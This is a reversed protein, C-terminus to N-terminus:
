ATAALFHSPLADGAHAAWVSAPCEGLDPVTVRTVLVEGEGCCVRIGEYPVVGAVTGPAGAAGTERWVRTRWVAVTSGDALMTFAGPYPHTLARVWDHVARAPRSWDIRGDAPKRKPYHTALSEDQPMRPATGDAIRPVLEHLLRVSAESVKDYVDGCTEDPGVAFEAQGIVHGTDAGRGLHMVSIGWRPEGAILGWNVPAGGRYRPLLSSHMGVCGKPPLALLEERVLRPWGICYVIDPALARIAAVVEPANIDAVHHLPIGHAAALDDFGRFASIRGAREAPMTYIAVVDDHAMIARLCHWSVEVTGIFVARM